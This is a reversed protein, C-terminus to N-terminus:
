QRALDPLHGKLGLARKMIEDKAGPLQGALSLGPMLLRQNVQAMIASYALYKDQM